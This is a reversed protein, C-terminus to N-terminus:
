VELEIEEKGTKRRLFLYSTITGAIFSILAIIITNLNVMGIQFEKGSPIEKGRGSTTAEKVIKIEIPFKQTHTKGLEDKYTINIIITYKGPNVESKIKTSISFPAQSNSTLSGIFITQMTLPELIDKESQISIRVGSATSIGDNRIAGSITITDGPKITLPSISLSILQLDIYGIISFGIKRTETIQFGYKDHYKLEITAQTSSGVLKSPAYIKIPINVECKSKIENIFWKNDEGLITLTSPLNITLILSKVIKNSNNKIKLNITNNHSGGILIYNDVNVEIKYETEISTPIEINIKNTIKKQFGYITTYTTTITLIAKSNLSSKPAYILIPILKISSPELINFQIESNNILTIQSSSEINIKLNYAYASGDNSLMLELKNITGAKISNKNLSFNLKAKGLLPIKIILTEHRDYYSGRIIESFDIGMQLNYYGYKGIENINIIFTLYFMNGPQVIGIYYTTISSKSNISRFPEKLYLTAIINTIPNPGNNRIYITLPVGKDGLEVEIPNDKEGWIVDMVTLYDNNCFAIKNSNLFLLSILIILISVLIKNKM